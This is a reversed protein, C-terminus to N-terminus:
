RNRAGPTLRLVMEDKCGALNLLWDVDQSPMKGHFDAMEYPFFMPFDVIEVCPDNFTGMSCWGVM